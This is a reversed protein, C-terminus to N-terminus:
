TTHTQTEAPPATTAKAGATPSAYSSPVVVTTPTANAHTAHNALARVHHDHVHAHAPARKTHEAREADVVHEAHEVYEVYEACGARAYDLAHVHARARAHSTARASEAGAGSEVEVGEAGGRVRVEDTADAGGCSKEVSSLAASQAEEQARARDVRPAWRGLAECSTTAWLYARTPPRASSNPRRYTSSAIISM